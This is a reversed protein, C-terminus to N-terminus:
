LFLDSCGVFCSGRRSYSNVADIEGAVGMLYNSLHYNAPVQYFEPTQSEHFEFNIPSYM